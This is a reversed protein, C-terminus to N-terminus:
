CLPQSIGPVHTCHVSPNLWRHNEPVRGTEGNSLCSAWSFLQLRLTALRSPLFCSQLLRELQLNCSWDLHKLKEGYFRTASGSLKSLIRRTTWDGHWARSKTVGHVAASWAGRGKVIERFKSLSMDKSDTISDLWRMRQWGRNRKGEIKGLMLTKELLNIRWIMHSFFQLKLM